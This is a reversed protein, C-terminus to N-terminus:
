QVYTTHDLLIRWGDNTLIFINSVIAKQSHGGMVIYEDATTWVNNEDIVHIEVNEISIRLNDVGDLRKHWYESLEKKGRLVTGNSIKVMDDRDSFYGLVSDLDLNAFSRCISTYVDEIQVKAQDIENIDSLKM